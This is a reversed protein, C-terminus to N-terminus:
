VKTNTIMEWYFNSKELQERIEALVCMMENHRVDQPTQNAETTQVVSNDTDSEETFKVRELDNVSYELNKKTM